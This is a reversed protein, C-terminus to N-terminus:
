DPPRVGLFPSILAFVMQPVYGGLIMGLFAPRLMRYLRLGGYRRVLTALAWGVLTNSWVFVDTSWGSAIVFGVPSVPWWLFHSHLAILASMVVAGILLAARLWPDPLEPSRLSSDFESWLGRQPSAMPWDPLSGAGHHYVITLLTPFGVILMTAVALAAAWPFRRGKVRGGHLLKFSNMAQAMLVIRPDYMFSTGLYGFVALSVPGVPAAGITSLMVTRPTLGADVHTLGAAAVLRSVGIMVTYFFGMILVFPWWPMGTQLAWWLMFANTLLFGLLAWSGRLPLYPDDEAPAPRRGILGRWAAALTHRSQYLVVASLAIFGGAEEMGIFTQPNIAVSSSGGPAIGFSAWVLQQARFLVYFLWLSLSVEGPMLYAIGILPFVISAHVGSDGSLVSWPLGAGSFARGIDFDVPILPASPYVSHLWNVTSVLAPVAFGIWALRNRLISGGLTPTDGDGTISLPIEALPFALRQREIWDRSLLAGLCFMAGMFALCFSGWALLPWTWARWPIPTGAAIGEWYGTAASLDSPRLWLPLYPWIRHEWDNAPTAMYFPFTLSGTIFPLGGKYLFQTTMIVMAYTVLLEVRGLAWRPLFRALAGNVAVLAFLVVVGTAPLASGGPDWTHTVAGLYPCALSVLAVTLTGVVLARGGIAVAGRPGAAAGTEDTVDQRHAM